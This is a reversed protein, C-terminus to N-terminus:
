AQVNLVTFRKVGAPMKWEVEDGKRFGILAAGLPALISIKKQKIDADIPMVIRFDTVKGSNVEKVSVLSNLRITGVPLAENDVVVARNLEYALSMESIDDTKTGAFQKLLNYDEECLIVPTKEKTKAKGSKM